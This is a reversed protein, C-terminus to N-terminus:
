LWGRALFGALEATRGDIIETARGRLTPHQANGAVWRCSAAYRGAILTELLAPADTPQPREASYGAWLAAKLDAYAPQAKYFLLPCAVDYLRYGFGCDDFDLTCVAGGAGFLVNKYIYDAHIFGFAGAVGELAHMADGVRATVADLIQQSQASILASEHTSAYPSHAGYLGEFDLQARQTHAGKLPVADATHHLAALARGVQEAHAPTYQEVPLLEGELWSLLAAYVPVDVGALAGVYLPRQPHPVCLGELSELWALEGEIHALPRHQPRYVRLAYVAAGVEVRFVANNSYAVLAVRARSIGWARLADQAVRTLAQEQARLDLQFFDHTM